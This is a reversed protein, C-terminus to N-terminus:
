SVRSLVFRRLWEPLAAGFGILAKIRKPFMHHARGREIAWQMEKAARQRDIILAKVPVDEPDLADTYTFGPYMAVLKVGSGALEIRASDMLVRGAAKAASYPGSRPLGFTGAPSGTYAITGSGRAKMHAILPSLFLVMTDYNVRMIWLVDAASAEDMRMAVGGGANLVAVDVGGTEMAADLVRQVQEPDTCDAPVVTCRSGNARVEDALAELLAARRATVVLHNDQNSLRLALERGLGSSAGTILVTQGTIRPM